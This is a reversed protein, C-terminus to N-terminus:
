ENIAEGIKVDEWRRKVDAMSFWMCKDSKELRISIHDERICAVRLPTTRPFQANERQVLDEIYARLGRLDSDEILVGTFARLVGDIRQTKRNNPLNNHFATILKM